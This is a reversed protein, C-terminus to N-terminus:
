RVFGLPPRKTVLSQPWLYTHGANKNGRYIWTWHCRWQIHKGRPHFLVHPRGNQLCAGEGEGRLLRVLPRGDGFKGPAERGRVWWHGGMCNDRFHHGFRTPTPPARGESGCWTTQDRTITPPVPSPPVSRDSEGGDQYAKHYRPDCMPTTPDMIGIITTVVGM